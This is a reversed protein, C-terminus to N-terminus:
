AEKIVPKDDDHEAWVVHGQHSEWVRDQTEKDGIVQGRAYDAFERTVVLVKM